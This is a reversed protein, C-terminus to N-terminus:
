VTGLVSPINCSYESARRHASEPPFHPIGHCNGPSCLSSLKWLAALVQTWRSSLRPRLEACLDSAAGYGVGAPAHRPHALRRQCDMIGRHVCHDCRDAGAAEHHSLVVTTLKSACCLRNRYDPCEPEDPAANRLTRGSRGATRQLKRERDRSRNRCM